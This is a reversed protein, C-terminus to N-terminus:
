SKDEKSGTVTLGNIGKAYTKFDLGTASEFATVDEASVKFSKGNEVPFPFDAVQFVTGEPYADDQMRLTYAMLFDTGKRKRDM